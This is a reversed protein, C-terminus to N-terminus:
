IEQLERACKNQHMQALYSSTKTLFAKLCKQYLSWMRQIEDEGNSKLWQCYSTVFIHDDDSLGESLPLGVWNWVDSKEQVVFDDEYKDIFRKVSALDELTPEYWRVEDVATVCDRLITEYQILLRVLLNLLLQKHIHYARGSLIKVTPQLITRLRPDLQHFSLMTHKKQLSEPAESFKTEPIKMSWGTSTLWISSAWEEAYFKYEGLFQETRSQYAMQIKPGLPQSNRNLMTSRQGLGLEITSFAKVFPRPCPFLLLDLRGCYDLQKSRSVAELNTKKDIKRAEIHNSFEYICGNLQCIKQIEEDCLLNHVIQLGCEIAARNVFGSSNPSTLISLIDEIQDESPHLASLPKANQEKTTFFSTRM